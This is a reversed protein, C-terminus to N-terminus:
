NVRKLYVMLSKMKNHDTPFKLENPNHYNLMLEQVQVYERSQPAIFKLSGYVDIPNGSALQVKGTLNLDILNNENPTFNHFIWRFQETANETKNISSFFLIEQPHSMYSPGAWDEVEGQPWLMPTYLHPLVFSLMPNIEPCSKGLHSFDYKLTKLNFSFKKTERCVTQAHSYGWFFSEKEWSFEIMASIILQDGEQKQKLNIIGKALIPKLGRIGKDAYSLYWGSMFLQYKQSSSATFNYRFIKKFDISFIEPPGAFLNLTFFTLLLLGSVRM